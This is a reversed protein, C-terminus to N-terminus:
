TTEHGPQARPSDGEDTSSSSQDQLQKHLRTCLTEPDHAVVVRGLYARSAIYLNTADGYTECLCTWAPQLEEPVPHEAALVAELDTVANSVTAVAEDSWPGVFRAHPSPTADATDESRGDTSPVSHRPADSRAFRSAPTAQDHRNEEHM